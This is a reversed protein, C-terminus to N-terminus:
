GEMIIVTRTGPFKELVIENETSKSSPMNVEITEIKYRVRKWGRCELYKQLMYYLNDHLEFNLTISIEGGFFPKSILNNKIANILNSNDCEFRRASLEKIEQPTM